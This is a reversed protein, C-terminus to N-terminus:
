DFPIAQAFILIFEGEHAPVARIQERARGMGEARPRRGRHADADGAHDVAVRGVAPLVFVGAHEAGREPVAPVSSRSVAGLQRRRLVRPRQQLRRTGEGVRAPSQARHSLRRPETSSTPTSGRRPM